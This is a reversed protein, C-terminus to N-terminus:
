KSLVPFKMKALAFGGFLLTSYFLDGMLTGRFFPIGAVYCDMLGSFTHSYMGSLAWVGFNTILFFTVSTLLTASMVRQANTNGALKTGIGVTIFLSGYVFIMDPYFGTGYLLELLLDSFALAALSVLVALKRDTLFAGAFLAIAGVPTFNYAHPLLRFLSVLLITSILFKVKPSM